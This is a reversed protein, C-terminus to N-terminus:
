SLQNSHRALFTLTMNKKKKQYLYKSNKQTVGLRLDTSKNKTGYDGMVGLRLDLPNIKKDWLGGNKYM